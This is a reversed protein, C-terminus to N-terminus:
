GKKKWFKWNIKKKKHKVIVYRLSLATQGRYFRDGNFVNFVPKYDVSINLRSITMELGTIATVGSDFKGTDESDTKWGRHLGAGYYFNLRRGLMKQHQEWLLTFRGNEKGGLGTQLLGELTTSKFIKQQITIGFSNGLRVGGATRYKQAQLTFGLLSIAIILISIRKM